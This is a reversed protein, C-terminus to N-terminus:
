RSFLTELDVRLAPLATSILTTGSHYIQRRTYEGAELASYVEMSKEGALLIWYEEVGAEAYLSAKERDLGLSSVAVEMVWLATSPHGDFYDEEQGAVVALDPEPMSDELKVPQEQRCHANAGAAAQALRQLRTVLVSHLPSAPMKQIIIGRILETRNGNIREGLAEYERVSFTQILRRVEPNELIAVMAALKGPRAGPPLMQM